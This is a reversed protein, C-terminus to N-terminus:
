MPRSPSCSCIACSGCISVTAQPSAQPVKAGPPVQLGPLRSAREMRLEIDRIATFYEDAEASREERRPEDSGELRRPHFGAREQAFRRTARARHRRARRLAARLRAESEGGEPATADAIELFAHLQLRVLLRLRLAAMGAPECGIELSALQTQDGIRAAALQDISTGARIDTGDTKRPHAGTLFAAMARAHDGGGDGHPRAKDAALGTLVLLDNKVPALPSLISPLDGL